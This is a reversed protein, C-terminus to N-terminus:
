PCDAVASDLHEPKDGRWAVLRVYQADPTTAYGHYGDNGVYIYRIDLPVDWAFSWIESGDLAYRTNGDAGWEARLTYTASTDWAYDDLLRDEEQGNPEKSTLIKMTGDGGGGYNQGTRFRWFDTQGPGGGDGADEVTRGAFVHHKDSSSQNPPDFNKLWLQAGGASVVSGLDREVVDNNGPLDEALMVCNDADGDADTDADGDADSDADTDGDADADTDSDADADADAEAESDPATGTDPLNTVCALLLLLM